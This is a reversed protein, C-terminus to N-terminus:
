SITDVAPDNAASRLIHDRVAAALAGADRAHIADLIRRHSEVSRRLAATSPWLAVPWLRARDRMETVLEALARNPTHGYLGDHFAVNTASQEARTGSAAAREFAAALQELAELAAADIRPLATVAAEVELLARIDLLQRLRERDHEAVRFGRNPVHEVTGRLALEALATRVEFRNAGLRQELDIQRLWEGARYGGGRIIMALELALHRKERPSIKM